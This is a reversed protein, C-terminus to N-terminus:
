YSCVQSSWWSLAGEWVETRVWCNRTFYFHSDDGVWWLGRIQCGTVEEYKWFHFQLQIASHTQCESLFPSGPLTGFIPSITPSTDVHPRSSSRPHHLDIPRITLKIIKVVDTRFIKSVVEYLKNIVFCVPPVYNKHRASWLRLLCRTKIKRLNIVEGGLVARMEQTKIKFAGARTVRM